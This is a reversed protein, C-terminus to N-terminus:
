FGTFNIFYLILLLNSFNTFKNSFVSLFLKNPGKYLWSCPTAVIKKYFFNVPLEFQM